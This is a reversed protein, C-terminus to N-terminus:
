LQQEIETTAIRSTGGPLRFVIEGRAGAVWGGIVDVMDEYGPALTFEAVAGDLYDGDADRFTAVYAVYGVDDIAEVDFVIAKYDDGGPATRDELRVDLLIFNEELVSWDLGLGELTLPRPTPRPTFTPSPGPTSTSTPTPLPTPTLTPTQPSLGPAPGTPTAPAPEAAAEDLPLRWLHLNDFAVEAGDGGAVSAALGIMGRSIAADEV